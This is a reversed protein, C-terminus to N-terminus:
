RALGAKRAFECTGGASGLVGAADKRVLRGCVAAGAGLDLSPDREGLVLRVAEEFRRLMEAPIQGVLANWADDPARWAWVPRSGRGEERVMPSRAGRLRECVSRRSRRAFALIVLVDRDEPNNPEFAGVLLLASLATIEFSEAWEPLEVYGLRRQLAGLSGGGSAEAVRGAEGESLGAGMLIEAFRLFPAPAVFSMWRGPARRREPLPGEMSLLVPGVDALANRFAAVVIVPQAQQGRVVSELADQSRVIITRAGSRSGKRRRTWPSRPRRSSLLKKM